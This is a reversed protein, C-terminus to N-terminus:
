RAGPSKRSRRGAAASTAREPKSSKGSRGDGVKEGPLRAAWELPSEGPAPVDADRQSMASRGSPTPYGDQARAEHIKAFDTSSVSEFDLLMRRVVGQIELRQEPELADFRARDITAFPWRGADAQDGGVLVGMPVEYLKALHRLWLADPLNRGKEWAGVGGKSIPHGLRTLAAAASELTFGAQKRAEALCRGLADKDHQEHAYAMVYPLRASSRYDVCPQSSLDVHRLSGDFSYM